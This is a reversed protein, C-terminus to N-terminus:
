SVEEVKFHLDLTQYINEPEAYQFLCLKLDWFEPHIPKDANLQAKIRIMLTTEDEGTPVTDWDMTPTRYRPSMADKLSNFAFANGLKDFTAIKEVVYDVTLYSGYKKAIGDIPKPQKVLM